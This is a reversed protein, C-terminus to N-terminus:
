RFLMDFSIFLLFVTKIDIQANYLKATLIYSLVFILGLIEANFLRGLRLYEKLKNSM